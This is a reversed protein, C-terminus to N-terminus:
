NKSWLLAAGEGCCCNTGGTWIKALHQPYRDFRAVLLRPAPAFRRRLEAGRRHGPEITALAFSAATLGAAVRWEYAIQLDRQRGSPSLSVRRTEKLIAGDLTRAVPLTLDARARYVRMPQSALFGLRDGPRFVERATIGLTAASARIRGWNTIFGGGADSVATNADTYSAHLAIDDSLPARAAITVFSSAAALDSFAGSAATRYLAADENVQGAGLGIRIGNRTM